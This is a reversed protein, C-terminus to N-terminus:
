RCGAEPEGPRGGDEGTGKRHMKRLFVTRAPVLYLNRRGLNRPDRDRFLVVEARTLRRGLEQEILVLHQPRWGPPRPLATRVLWYGNKYGRVRGPLPCRNAIHLRHQRCYLRQRWRNRQWEMEAVNPCGEDPGYGGWVCHFRFPGKPPSTRPRTRAPM